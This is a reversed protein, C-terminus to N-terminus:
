YTSSSLPVYKIELAGKRFGQLNYKTTHEKTADTENILSFQWFMGAYVYGNEWTSTDSAWIGNALKDVNAPEFMNPLPNILDIVYNTHTTYLVDEYIHAHEVSTPLVLIPKFPEDTLTGISNIFEDYLWVKNTSYIYKNDESLQLTAYEEGMENHTPTDLSHTVDPNALDIFYCKNLPPNLTKDSEGFCYVVTGVSFRPQSTGIPLFQNNYYAFYQEYQTSYVIPFGINFLGTVLTYDSNTTIPTDEGTNCNNPYPNPFKNSAYENGVFIGKGNQLCVDGNQLTLIRQFDNNINKYKLNYAGYGRPSVCHSYAHNNYDLEVELETATNYQQLSYLKPVGNQAGYGVPVYWATTNYGEGTMTEQTDSIVPLPINDCIYVHYDYTIYMNNDCIVLWNSGDYRQLQKYTINRAGDAETIDKLWVEGAKPSVPKDAGIYQINKYIPTGVDQLSSPLTKLYDLIQNFIDNNQIVQEPANSFQNIFDDVLNNWQTAKNNIITTMTNKATAISEILNQYKTIVAELNNTLETTLATKQNNIYTKYNNVLTTLNTTHTTHRNTLYTNYANHKNTLETKYTAMATKFNNTWINMRNTIDAYYNNYKTLEQALFNNWKTQSTQLYTNLDKTFDTHFQQLYAEQEELQEHLWNALTNMNLSNDDQNARIDNLQVILKSCVEYYSLENVYVTPLTVSVIYRVGRLRNLEVNTIDPTM